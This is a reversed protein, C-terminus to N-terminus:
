STKKRLRRFHPDNPHNYHPKHVNNGPTPSEEDKNKGSQGVTIVWAFLVVGIILAVYLLIEGASIGSSKGATQAWTSTSLMLSAAILAIGKNNHKPMM